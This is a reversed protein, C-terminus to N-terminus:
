EGEETVQDGAPTGGEDNHPDGFAGPIGLTDQNATPNEAPYYGRGAGRNEQPPQMTPDQSRTGAVSVNDAQAVRATRDPGTPQDGRDEGGATGSDNGGTLDGEGWAPDDTTGRDERDPM